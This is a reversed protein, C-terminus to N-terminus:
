APPEEDWGDPPEYPRHETRPTPFLMTGPAAVVEQRHWAGTPVICVEGPRLEIRWEGADDDLDRRLVVDVAGAVLYLLEDADPHREWEDRVGVADMLVHGTRRGDLEADFLEARITTRRTM